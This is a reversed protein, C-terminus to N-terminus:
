PISMMVFFYLRVVVACRPIKLPARKGIAQFNRRKRSPHLAAGTPQASQREELPLLIEVFYKLNKFIL